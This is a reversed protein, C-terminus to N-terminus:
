RNGHLESIHDGDIGSRRHLGDCNQSVVHKVVGCQVLRALVLHSMSPHFSALDFTMNAIADDTITKTRMGNKGRYDPIGCSTSVGSFLTLNMM